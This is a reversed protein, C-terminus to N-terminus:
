LIRFTTINGVTAIGTILRKFFKVSRWDLDVSNQEVSGRFSNAGVYVFEYMFGGPCEVVKGKMTMVGVCSGRM